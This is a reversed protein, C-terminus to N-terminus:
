PTNEADGEGYRRNQGPIKSDHCKTTGLKGLSLRFPSLSQGLALVDEGAVGPTVHTKELM